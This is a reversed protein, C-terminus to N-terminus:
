TLSLGLDKRQCLVLELKRYTHKGVNAFQAVRCPLTKIGVRRNVVNFRAVGERLWGIIGDEGWRRAAAIPTTQKEVAANAASGTSKAWSM